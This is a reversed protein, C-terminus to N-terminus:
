SDDDEAKYHDSLYDILTTHLQLSAQPPAYRGFETLQRLLDRCALVRERDSLAANVQVTELAATITVLAQASEAKMFELDRGALQVAPQDLDDFYADVALGGSNGFLEGRVWWRGDDLQRPARHAWFDSFMFPRNPWEFFRYHNM